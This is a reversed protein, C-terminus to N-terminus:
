LSINKLDDLGIWNIWTPKRFWTIQRKAYNRSGKKVREIATNLDCEGNFYNIFEKYGIAQLATRSLGKQKSVGEIYAKECVTMVKKVEDLLGAELMFDVRVNIRDYLVDRDTDIAYVKFDFEPAEAKSEANREALTKGTCRKMGLARMVRKVNNYHIVEAAGSDEITLLKHLEIRANLEAMMIADANADFDQKSEYFHKINSNKEIKRECVNFINDINDPMSYKCYENKDKLISQPGNQVYYTLKEDRANTYLNEIENFVKEDNAPMCDYKINEVLSNIYLGTGGCVIPLKGRKIVTKIAEKASKVYDAVSYEEWPEVFDMMYHKIGNKENEDPKATGINMYKYIQMSDASIIEGNYRRAIEISASTKGSATPGAIVIVKELM